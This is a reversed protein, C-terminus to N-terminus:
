GVAPSLIGSSARTIRMQGSPKEETSTAPWSCSIPKSFAVSTMPPTSAHFSAPRGPAVAPSRPRRRAPRPRRASARGGRGRGAGCRGPRRPSSGSSRRAGSASPARSAGRGASRSTACVARPADRRSRASEAALSAHLACRRASIWSRTPPPPGSARRGHARARPAREIDVPLVDAERSRVPGRRRGHLARGRPPRHPGRALGGRRHAGRGPPPQRRPPQLRPGAVRPHRGRARAAALADVTPWRELWREYRPIVREVQTQQLMIESVLIAYPNNTRRWPLDRGNERFWALLAGEM